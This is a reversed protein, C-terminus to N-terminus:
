QACRWQSSGADGVCALLAHSFCGDPQADGASPYWCRLEPQLCPKFCVSRAGAWDDPCVESNPPGSYTPCGGADPPTEMDPVRCGCLTVLVVCWVWPERM